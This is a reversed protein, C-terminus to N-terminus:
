NTCVLLCYIPRTREHRRHNVWKVDGYPKMLDIIFSKQNLFDRPVEDPLSASFFLFSFPVNTTSM